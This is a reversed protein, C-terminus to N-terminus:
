IRVRLSLIRITFVLLNVSCHYPFFYLKCNVIYLKYKGHLPIFFLRYECYSIAGITRFLTFINSKM